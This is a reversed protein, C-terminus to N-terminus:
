QTELLLLIRDCCDSRFRLLSTSMMGLVDSTECGMMEVGDRGGIAYKDIIRHCGQGQCYSRRTPSIVSCLSYDAILLVLVLQAHFQFSFLSKGKTIQEKLIATKGKEEELDKRM